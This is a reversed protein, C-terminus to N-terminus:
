LAFVTAMLPALLGFVVVGVEDLEVMVDVMEVVLSGVGLLVLFDVLLLETKHHGKYAIRAMRGM